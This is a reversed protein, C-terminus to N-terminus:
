KELSAVNPKTKASQQNGSLIMSSLNYEITAEEIPSIHYQSGIQIIYMIKNRNNHHRFLNAIGIPEQLESGYDLPSGKQYKMDNDLNGNFGDLINIKQVVAEQTRKFSLVSPHLEKSTTRILKKIPIM